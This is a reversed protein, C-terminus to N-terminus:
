PIPINHSQLLKAEFGLISLPHKNAKGHTKDSSGLFTNALEHSVDLIVATNWFRM